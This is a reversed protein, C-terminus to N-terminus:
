KSELKQYTNESLVGTKKMAFLFTVSIAAGAFSSISFPLIFGYFAAKSSLLMAAVPYAVLAGIVGTGIVEGVFAFGTKRTYRYLLGCLLAGIMSGPFALLSGTGLMNRILSTVFAMCVAYLPGLTVGALVNIFHQVPFVKSVGIPIYFTSLTVGMAVMIGALSLKRVSM